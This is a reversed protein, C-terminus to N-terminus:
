INSSNITEAAKYFSDLIAVCLPLNATTNMFKSQMTMRETCRNYDDHILLNNEKIEGRLNMMKTLTTQSGYSQGDTKKFVYLMQNRAYARLMNMAIGYHTAPLRFNPLQKAKGGRKKAEQSTLKVCQALTYMIEKKTDLSDFTEDFDKEAVGERFRFGQVTSYKGLSTREKNGKSGGYSGREIFEDIKPVIVRLKESYLTPLLNAIEAEAEKTIYWLSRKEKLDGFLKHPFYSAIITAVQAKKPHRRIAELFLATRLPFLLVMDMGQPGQPMYKSSLQKVFDDKVLDEQWNFHETESLFNLIDDIVPTRAREAIIPLLSEDERKIKQVIDYLVSFAVSLRDDFRTAKVVWKNYLTSSDFLYREGNEVVRVAEDLKREYHKVIIELDTM